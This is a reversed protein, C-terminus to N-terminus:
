CSAEDARRTRIAVCTHSGHMDANGVLKTPFVTVLIRYKEALIPIATKGRSM